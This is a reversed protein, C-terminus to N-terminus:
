KPFTALSQTSNSSVESTARSNHGSPEFNVPNYCKFVSDAHLGGSNKHLKKVREDAQVMTTENHPDYAVYGAWVQLWEDVTSPM